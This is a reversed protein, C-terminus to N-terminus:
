VFVLLLDVPKSVANAMLHSTFLPASFSCISNRLLSVSFETIGSVNSITMNSHKM